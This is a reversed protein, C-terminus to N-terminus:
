VKTMITSPKDLISILIIGLVMVTAGLFREKINTEMFFVAGFVVGFLINLRKVSVMYSVEVLSIAKLHTVTMVAM